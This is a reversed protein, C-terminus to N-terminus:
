EGHRDGANLFDDFGSRDDITSGRSSSIRVFTLERELWNAVFSDWNASRKGQDKVWRKLKRQAAEIQDGTLGLKAGFSWQDDSLVWDDPLDTKVRRVRKKTGNGAKRKRQCGIEGESQVSSGLLPTFLPTDSPTSSLHIASVPTRDASMPTRDASRLTREASVSTRDRNELYSVSTRERDRRDARESRRRAIEDALAAIRGYLLKYANATGTRTWSVWVDRLVKRGRRITREDADVYERIVDDSLYAIGTQANVHQAIVFGIKFSLLPVSHDASMHFLWDLKRSTFSKVDTERNSYQPSASNNSIAEGPDGDAAPSRKEPPALM